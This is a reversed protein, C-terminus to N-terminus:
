CSLFQYEFFLIRVFVISPLRDFPDFGVIQFFLRKIAELYYPLRRKSPQRKKDLITARTEECFVLHVMEVVIGNSM